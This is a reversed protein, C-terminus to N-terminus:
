KLDNTLKLLYQAFPLHALNTQWPSDASAECAPLWVLSGSGCMVCTAGVLDHLSAGQCGGNDFGCQPNTCHMTYWDDAPLTVIIQGDKCKPCKTLLETNM